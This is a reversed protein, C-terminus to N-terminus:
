SLLNGDDDKGRMYGKMPSFGHMTRNDRCQTLEEKGCHKCAIHSWNNDVVVVVRMKHGTSARCEETCTACSANGFTNTSCVM